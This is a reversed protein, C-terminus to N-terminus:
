RGSTDGQCDPYGTLHEIFDQCMPRVPDSAEVTALGPLSPLTACCQRDCVEASNREASICEVAPPPPPLPSLSPFLLDGTVWLGNELPVSSLSQGALCGRVEPVVPYTPNPLVFGQAQMEFPERWGIFGDSPGTSPDCAVGCGPGLRRCLPDSPTRHKM